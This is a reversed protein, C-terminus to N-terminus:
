KLHKWTTHAVISSVQCRSIGYMEAISGHTLIKAFGRIRKVDESNLKAMPNSEGKSRETGHLFMHFHNQKCTVWSLNELKNNLSNGDLHHCQKGKPCPSLFETLVLRHMSKRVRKGKVLYSAYEYGDTFSTKLILPKTRYSGDFPSTLSRIRGYNSIEYKGDTDKIKKWQENTIKTFM